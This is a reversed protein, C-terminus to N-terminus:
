YVLFAEWLDFLDNLNTHTTWIQRQLEIAEEKSLELLAASAVKMKNFLHRSNYIKKTKSARRSMFSPRKERERFAWKNVRYPLM